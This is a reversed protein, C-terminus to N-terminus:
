ENVSNGIVIIDRDRLKADTIVSNKYQYVLRVNNIAEELSKALVIASFSREIREDDMVYYNGAVYYTNVMKEKHEKIMKDIENLDEQNLFKNNNM